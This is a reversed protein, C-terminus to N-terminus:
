GDFWLKIDHVEINGLFSCNEVQLMVVDKDFMVSRGRVNFYHYVQQFSFAFVAFIVSFHPHHSDYQYLQVLQRQFPHTVHVSLCDKKNAIFCLSGKICM